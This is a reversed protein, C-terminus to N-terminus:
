NKNEREIKESNFINWIMKSKDSDFEWEDVPKFANKNKDFRLLGLFSLLPNCHIELIYSDCFESIANNGSSYVYHKRHLVLVSRYFPDTLVSFVTYCIGFLLGISIIIIIKM